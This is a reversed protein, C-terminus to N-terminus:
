VMNVNEYLLSTGLTAGRDPMALEPTDKAMEKRQLPIPGGSEMAPVPAMDKYSDSRGVFKSPGSTEATQSAYTSAAVDTPSKTDAGGNQASITLQEGDLPVSLQALLTEDQALHLPKPPYSYKIDFKNLTTKETIQKKLDAVTAYEGLTVTSAGGPGRLRIRM